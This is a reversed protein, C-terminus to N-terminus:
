NSINFIIWNNSSSVMLAEKKPPFTLSNEYLVAYAPPHITTMDTTYQFTNFRKNSLLQMGQPITTAAEEGNVYVVENKLHNILYTQTELLGKNFAWTKHAQKAISGVMLMALLLIVTKAINRILITPWELFTHACQATLFGLFPGLPGQYYGIQATWPILIGFYLGAGILCMIELSNFEKKITKILLGSLLLPTAFKYTWALNKLSLVTHSILSGIELRYGASYGTRVHTWLFIPFGIFLLALVIMTIKQTKSSPQLSLCFLVAPILCFFTEKILCAAIVCLVAFFLFLNQHNIQSRKSFYLAWSILVIGPLEQISLFGIGAVTLPGFYLTLLLALPILTKEIHFLCSLRWWALLVLLLLFMQIAHQASASEILALRGRVYVYWLPKFMGSSVGEPPFLIQLKEKIPLPAHLQRAAIVMGPEDMIGWTWPRFTSFFIVPIIATIFLAWLM